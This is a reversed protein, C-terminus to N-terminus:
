AQPAASRKLRALAADHAAQNARLRHQHWLLIHFDEKMPSPLAAFRAQQRQQVRRLRDALDAVPERRPRSGPRGTAASSPDARCPAMRQADALGEPEDKWNEGPAAPPLGLPTEHGSLFRSAYSTSPRLTPEMQQM